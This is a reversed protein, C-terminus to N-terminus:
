ISIMKESSFIEIMEKNIENFDAEEPKTNKNWLFVIDYGQALNKEIKRYSERIKRKIYNRKVANCIKNNIAIGIYNKEKNNKMIYVVIQKKIFYKGRNIVNKFEYNKKLTNIKKM